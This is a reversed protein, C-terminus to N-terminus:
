FFRRALTQRTRLLDPGNVQHWIKKIEGIFLVCRKMRTTKGKSQTANIRSSVVNEGGREAV